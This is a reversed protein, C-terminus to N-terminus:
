CKKVIHVKSQIIYKDKFPDNLFPESFYLFYIKNRNCKTKITM